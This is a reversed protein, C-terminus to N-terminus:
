TCIGARRARGRALERSVDFVTVIDNLPGLTLPLGEKPIPKTTLYRVEKQYAFTNLKTFPGMAGCHAPPVYNVLNFDLMFGHRLAALKFRRNFEEPEQILVLGNYGFQAIDADEAIAGFVRDSSTGRMVDTPIGYVCYVGHKRAKSYVKLSSGPMPLDIGNPLNATIKLSPELSTYRRLLGEDPDGQAKNELDTYYVLQRMLISGYDALPGMWKLDGLKVLVRREHEPM